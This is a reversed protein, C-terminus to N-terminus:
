IFPFQDLLYQGLFLSWQGRPFALPFPKYDSLVFISGRHHSSRRFALSELRLVSDTVTLCPPLLMMSHYQRKQVLHISYHVGCLQILMKLGTKRNIAQLLIIPSVIEAYLTSGDTKTDFCDFEHKQLKEM